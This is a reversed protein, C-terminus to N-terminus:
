LEALKDALTLLDISKSLTIAGTESNVNYIQIKGEVFATFTHNHYSGFIRVDNTKELICNYSKNLDLNNIVNLNKSNDYQILEFSSLLPFKFLEPTTNGILQKINEDITHQTYIWTKGNDKTCMAIISDIDTNDLKEYMGQTEYHCIFYIIEVSQGEAEFSKVNGILNIYGKVNFDDYQVKCAIGRDVYYKIEDYFNEDYEGPIIVPPELKLEGAGENEGGGQGGQGLKSLEDIFDKRDKPNMQISSLINSMRQKNM